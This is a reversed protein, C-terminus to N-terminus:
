KPPEPLLMWHTVKPMDFEFHNGIIALNRHYSAVHMEKINNSEEMCVLCNGEPPRDEVSIWKM